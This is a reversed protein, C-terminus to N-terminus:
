RLVVEPLRMATSSSVVIQILVFPLIGRRRQDIIGRIVLRAPRFLPSTFSACMNFCFLEGAWLCIAQRLHRVGGIRQHAVAMPANIRDLSTDGFRRIPRVM